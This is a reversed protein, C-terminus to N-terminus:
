RRGQGGQFNGATLSTLSFRILVSTDSELSRDATLNRRFTIDFASCEDKYSLSFDQNLTGNNFEQTGENFLPRLNERWAAGISWHKTLRMRVLASLEEIDTVADLEELNEVTDFTLDGVSRATTDIIVDELRVYGLIGNFRWFNFGLVSDVQRLQGDTDLRLRNALSLSQGIEIKAEGVYDSRTDGLGVSPAFLDGRGTGFAFANTDQVRFQQGVAAQLKIGNSFTVSSSIGVNARQGDEVADFGTAKNFSFLNSYDFETLQSDENIIASTNRNSPSAALQIRPELLLRTGGYYRALPYSWEVGITPAFRAVVDTDGDERVVLSQLFNETGQDVENLDQFFFADGRLEAFANFRHGGRTIYDRTWFASTTIRRSDIGATRQLSAFNANVSLNGGGLKRDFEHKFNLLPLVYPTLTSDDSIRLGQFLYADATLTSNGKRWATNVNSRLRNTLSRDFELRLDGRRFVNYRRLFFDDSTREIDYGIRFNDTVNHYGRGFYYWRVGPADEPAPTNNEARPIVVVNRGDVVEVVNNFRDVFNGDENQLNGLADQAPRTFDIVGGAWVHQSNRGARRFEGQWLTGDSLTFKPFFTFDLQNSVSFYYPIEIFGSLRSSTGIVPTLFGSQREVSPDPTQLFPTYLIPVGKLEFFAHHFRIVKREEDRTVRLSKVRWTPVKGDGDEKCVDCATYVVRNLETRANQRRIASEAAVKANEALLANFNEAIGDRLDGTLEVREAFVTEGTASTISVQGDAFVVQTAPDYSLAEATLYQDGFYAKVNGRAEIPSDISDRYIEDAEFLVTEGESPTGTAPAPQATLPAAQPTTAAGAQAGMVATFHDLWPTRTLARSGGTLQPITVASRGLSETATVPLITGAGSFGALPVSVLPGGMVSTGIAPSAPNLPEVAFAPLTFLGLSTSLGTSIALLSASPTNLRARTRRDSRTSM